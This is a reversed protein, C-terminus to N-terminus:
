SHLRYEQTTQTKPTINRQHIQFLMSKTNTIKLRKIENTYDTILM